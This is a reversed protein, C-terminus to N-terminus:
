EEDLRLAFSGLPDIFLAPDECQGSFVERDEDTWAILRELYQCPISMARGDPATKVNMGLSGDEFQCPGIVRHQLRDGGINTVYFYSPPAMRYADLIWVAPPEAEHALIYDLMKAGIGVRCALQDASYPYLTGGPRAEFEAREADSLGLELAAAIEEETLGLDADPISTTTM